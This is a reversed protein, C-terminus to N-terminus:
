ISLCKELIRKGVVDVGDLSTDFYNNREGYYDEVSSENKSINNMLLNFQDLNVDREKARKCLIPVDSKLCISISKNTKRSFLFADLAKIQATNEPFQHFVIGKEKLNIIADKMLMIYFEDPAKTESKIYKDLIVGIKTGKEIEEAVIDKLCFHKYELSKSLLKAHTKKGSFPMGHVVIIKKM